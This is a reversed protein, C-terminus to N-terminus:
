CVRMTDTPRVWPETHNRDFSRVVLLSNFRAPSTRGAHVVDIHELGYSGCGDSSFVRLAQRSECGDVIRWREGQGIQPTEAAIVEGSPKKTNQCRKRHDQIAMRQRESGECQINAKQVDRVESSDM